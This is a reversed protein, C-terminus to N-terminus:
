RLGKGARKYGQRIYTYTKDRNFRQNYTNCWCNICCHKTRFISKKYLSNPINTYRPVKGCCHVTSNVVNTGPLIHTKLLDHNNDRINLYHRVYKKKIIFIVKIFHACQWQKYIYKGKPKVSLTQPKIQFPSKYTSAFSPFVINSVLGSKM